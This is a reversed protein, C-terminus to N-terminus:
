GGNNLFGAFITYVTIKSSVDPYRGRIHGDVPVSMGDGRRVRQRSNGEPIGIIFLCALIGGHRIDRDLVEVTITYADGSVM